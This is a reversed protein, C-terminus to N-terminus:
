LVGPGFYTIDSPSSRRNQHWCFDGLSWLVHSYSKMMGWTIEEDEYTYETEDEVGEAELGISEGPEILNVVGRKRCQNSRHGLQGCRYCKDSAPRSYPNRPAEPPVVRTTAVQTRSSSPRKTFNTMPSPPNLPLKEKHAAAHMSEIPSRSIGTARTRDLQAEAKTALNIAETLSYITHMSVRDQINIHLGRIFRAVQQANTELLNNRSSLIHFEEVYAQITRIGQRCDQYQQFLIQEYDPPLYRYRLLRRMKSWTQVM